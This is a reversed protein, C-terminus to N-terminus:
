SFDAISQPAVDYKKGRYQDIKDAYTAPLGPYGIMKWAVADRNGGYIPDSFFGEMTISLLAEFFAKGNLGALQAKGGDMEKLATERDAPSLRDLDKGYTKRSWANTEAIGQKFYEQPTLALQYGHEPKGKLFPGSRYFRSGTGYAGALQRDIFVAVGCDTGSPTLDDKPIFTDVVAQIFAQETANLTQYTDVSAAAPPKAQAIQQVPAPAPAPTAAPAPQVLALPAAAAATGAVGARALFQRRALKQDTM